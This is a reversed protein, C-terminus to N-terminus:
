LNRLTALTGTVVGGGDPTTSIATITGLGPLTMGVKARVLNRSTALFAEGDFVSAIAYDGARLTEDPAVTAVPMPVPIPPPGAAEHTEGGAGGAAGLAAYAGGGALLLFVGAALAIRGKTATLAALKGKKSTPADDAHDAM